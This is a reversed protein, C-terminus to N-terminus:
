LINLTEKTLFQYNSIKYHKITAELLTDRIVIILHKENHNMFYPILTEAAEHLGKNKLELKGLEDLIIFRTKSHILTKMFSNARDFSAKSFFFPGVSITDNQDNTQVELPFETKSKLELFFRKGNADDPCLLGDVDNRKRVWERLASTKGTRIEGSLIYIM